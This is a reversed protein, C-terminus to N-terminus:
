GPLKVFYGTGAGDPLNRNRLRLHLQSDTNLLGWPSVFEALFKHRDSPRAGAELASLVEEARTPPQSPLAASATHTLAQTHTHTDEPEEDGNRQSITCINKPRCQGGLQQLWSQINSAFGTPKLRQLEM